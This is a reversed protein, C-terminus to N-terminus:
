VFGPRSLLLQGVGFSYILAILHSKEVFNESFKHCCVLSIVWALLFLHLQHRSGCSSALSLHLPCIYKRQLNHAMVYKQAFPAVIFGLRANGVNILAKILAAVIFVSEFSTATGLNSANRPM